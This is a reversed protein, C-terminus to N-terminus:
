FVFQVGCLQQVMLHSLQVLRHLFLSRQQVLRHLLLSRQQVTSKCAHLSDQPLRSPSGAQALQTTSYFECPNGSTM